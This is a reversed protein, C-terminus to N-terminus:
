SSYDAKLTYYSTQSPVVYDNSKKKYMSSLFYLQGGEKYMHDDEDVGCMIGLLYLCYKFREILM